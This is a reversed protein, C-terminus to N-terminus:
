GFTRRLLEGTPNGGLAASIQEWSWNVLRAERVAVEVATHAVRSAQVAADVLEEVCTAMGFAAVRHVPPTSARTAAVHAARESRQAVLQPPPCEPTTEASVTIQGYLRRLMPERDSGAYGDIWHRTEAALAFPLEAGAKVYAVLVDAIANHQEGAGIKACLRARDARDMFAEASDALSWALAVVDVGNV